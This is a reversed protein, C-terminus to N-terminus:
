VFGSYFGYKLCIAVVIFYILWVALVSRLMPYWYWVLVALDDRAARLYIAMILMTLITPILWLM